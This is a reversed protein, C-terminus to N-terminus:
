QALGLTELSPASPLTLGLLKLPNDELCLWSDLTALLLVSTRAFAHYPAGSCQPRSIQRLRTQKALSTELLLEGGVFFGQCTWAQKLLWSKIRHRKQPQFYLSTHVIFLCQCLKFSLFVCKWCTSSISAQKRNVACRFILLASIRFQALLICPLHVVSTYFKQLVMM